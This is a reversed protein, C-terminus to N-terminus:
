AKDPWEDADYSRFCSAYYAVEGVEDCYVNTREGKLWVKTGRIFLRRVRYTDGAMLDVVVKYGNSVPLIVGHGTDLVRGGSIAYINRGIQRVLERADCPITGDTCDTTANIERTTETTTM